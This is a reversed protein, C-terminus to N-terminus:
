IFYEVRMIVNGREVTANVAVFDSPYKNILETAAQTAVSGGRSILWQVFQRRGEPTNAVSFNVNNWGHCSGDYPTIGADGLYIGRNPSKKTYALDTTRYLLRSSSKFPAGIFVDDDDLGLRTNYRLFAVGPKVDDATLAFPYLPTRPAKKPERLKKAAEIIWSMDGEKNFISTPHDQLELDTVQVGLADALVLIAQPAIEKWTFAPSFDFHTKYDYAGYRTVGEIDGFARVKHATLTCRTEFYVSGGSSDYRQVLVTYKERATM